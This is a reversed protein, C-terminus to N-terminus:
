QWLAAPQQETRAPVRARVVALQEAVDVLAGRVRGADRDLAGLPERLLGRDDADADLGHAGVGARGRTEVRREGAVREQEAGVAVPERLELVEGLQWRLSRHDDGPRQRDHAAGAAGGAHEGQDLASGRSAGMSTASATPLASAESPMSVTKPTTPLPLKWTVLARIAPPARKTAVRCSHPAAVM